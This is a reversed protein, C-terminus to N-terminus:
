TILQRKLLDYCASSRCRMHHGKCAWEEIGCVGIMATRRGGPDGVVIRLESMM